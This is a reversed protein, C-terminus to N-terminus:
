LNSFTIKRSIIVLVIAIEHNIIIIELFAIIIILLPAGQRGFISLGAGQCQDSLRRQTAQTQSCRLMM